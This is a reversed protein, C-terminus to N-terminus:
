KVLPIPQLSPSSNASLILANHQWGSSFDVIEADVLEGSDNAIRPIPLKSRKLYAEKNHLVVDFLMAGPHMDRSFTPNSTPSVGSPFVVQVRQHGKKLAVEKHAICPVDEETNLELTDSSSSSPSSTSSFLGLGERSPSVTELPYGCEELLPELIPVPVSVTNRDYEGVGLAWMSGDDARIVTSFMSCDVAVFLM